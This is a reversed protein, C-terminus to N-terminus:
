PRLWAAMGTGPLAAMLAAKDLRLAVYCIVPFFAYGVIEVSLSWTVGNWEGFDPLGWRSALFLRQVFGATSYVAPDLARVWAVYSPSSFVLIAILVLVAANLPYVRFFRKKFFDITRARSFSHFDAGHVHMLIFGSLVFFLDVARWGDEIFIISKLWATFPLDMTQWLHFILVWLAAVGRIGTLSPINQNKM